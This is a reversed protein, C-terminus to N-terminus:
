PADSVEVAVTLDGPLTPDDNDVLTMQLGETQEIVTDARLPFEFTAETAGQDFFIGGFWLTLPFPPNPVEGFQLLLFDETLDDTDLLPLAGNAGFTMEYFLPVPAPESLTARVVVTDGEVVVGADISLSLIPAPEDELTIVGGQYRGTTAGRLAKIVIPVRQAYPVFVDDGRVRLAITPAPGGPEIVVRQGRLGTGTPRTTEVWLVARERVRGRVRLPVEITQNADTENVRLLPASIQPLNRQRTPDLGARRKSADLVWVRGRESRTVLEIAVIASTDVGSLRGADFRATYAWVKGLPANRGPLPNLRVVDDLEAVAGTSDVVRLGLRVPGRSPDVAVRLDISDRRGLAIPADLPVRVTAGRERWFVDLAIPSPVTTAFIMTLWHPLRGEPVGSACPPTVAFEAATYGLCPGATASTATIPGLVTPRYILQRRGGLAHTHVVARGASRARVNSGDLLSAAARDREVATKVLAAIYTAGVAQQEAPSLRSPADPGCVPDRRSGGFLWDDESPAEAIGPTWETNYFNHNTGMVLVSSRLSRDEGLDRTGDVFQQGQLDSVDGDCYPLIVAKPIGLGTQRGFSTPGIDVLGVLDYPASRRTDVAAREVGEGGRSHGVLVVNTLDVAGELVGGIPDGGNASWDAWLALHHRVLASRAAAGGDDSAFDQSNIANASISVTAYGQSALLEAVYRYGEHSPIPLENPLCPWSGSAFLLVPDYCTAHRGHLFLLLPRPGPAGVPLIVDGIVEMPEAFERWPLPDVDYSYSATEYPGPRGPDDAAPLAPAARTAIPPWGDVPISVEPTPGDIRQSGLWVSLEGLTSTAGAPLELVLEDAVQRPYGLVADDSRFEPRAGRLPLPEDLHYRLQDGEASAVLRWADPRDGGQGAAPGTPGLLWVISMVCVLVALLRKM